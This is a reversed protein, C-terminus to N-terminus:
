KRCFEVGDKVGLALGEMLPARFGEAGAGVDCFPGLGLAGGGGGGGDFEFGCPLAGCGTAFGGGGGAGPPEFGGALGGARACLKLWTHNIQFDGDIWIPFKIIVSRKIFILFLLYINKKRCFFSVSFSNQYSRCIIGRHFLWRYVQADPLWPFYCLQLAYLPTLSQGYTPTNTHQATKYKSWCTCAQAHRQM